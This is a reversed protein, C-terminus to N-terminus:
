RRATAVVPEPNRRRAFARRISHLWWVLWLDLVLLLGMIPMAIPVISGQGAAAPADPVVDWGFPERGTVVVGTWYGLWLLALLILWSAPRWGQRTWAARLANFGIGLHIAAIVGAAIAPIPAIRRFGMALLVWLAGALIALLGAMVEKGRLRPVARREGHPPVNVM